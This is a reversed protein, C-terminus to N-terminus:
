GVQPQPVCNPLTINTRLAEIYSALESSYQKATNQPQNILNDVLTSSLNFGEPTTTREKIILLLPPKNEDKRILNIKQFLSYYDPIIVAMSIENKTCFSILDCESNMEEIRHPKFGNVENIYNELRVKRVEYSFVPYKKSSQAFKDTTLMIIVEDAFEFALKIYDKHGQHMANFTGGIIATRRKKGIENIDDM